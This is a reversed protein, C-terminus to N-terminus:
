RLPQLAQLMVQGRQILRAVEFPGYTEPAGSYGGSRMSPFQVQYAQNPYSAAIAAILRTGDNAIAVYQLGHSRLEGILNGITDAEHESGEQSSLYHGTRFKSEILTAFILQVFEDTIESKPFRRLGYISASERRLSNLFLERRTEPSLNLQGLRSWFSTSSYTSVNNESQYRYIRLKAEDPLSSAQVELADVTRYREEFTVEGNEMRPLYVQILGAMITNRRQILAQIMYERDAERSYGAATVIARIRTDTFEKMQEVVFQADQKNLQRWPHNSELPLTTLQNTTRDMTFYRLPVSEMIEFINDEGRFVGIAASFPEGPKHQGRAKSGFAGGFDLLTVSGDPHLRNNSKNGIRDYDALFAAIIRMRRVSSTNMGDFRTRQTDSGIDAVAVYHRGNVVMKKIEPTNYGFHRYILAGMVEASTQLEEHIVDEKVYWRKGAADQFWQGGTSGDSREEIYTLGPFNVQSLLLKACTSPDVSKNGDSGAAYVFSQLNLAVLVSLWLGSKSIM